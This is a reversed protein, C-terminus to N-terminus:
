PLKKPDIDVVLIQEFGKREEYINVVCSHLPLRDVTIKVGYNLNYRKYEKYEKLTM